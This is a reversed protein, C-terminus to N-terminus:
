FDKIVVIFEDQLVRGDDTTATVSVKHKTGIPGGNEVLVKVRTGIVLSSVITLGVPTVTVVASAITDTGVLDDAYEVSYSEKEAPQKTFRGLISM